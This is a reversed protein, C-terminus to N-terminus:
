CAADCGIADGVAEVHGGFHVFQRLLVLGLRSDGVCLEHHARDFVDRHGVGADIDHDGVADDVEAM